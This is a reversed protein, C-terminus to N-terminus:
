LVIRAVLMVATFSGNCSWMSLCSSSFLVVCPIYHKETNSDRVYVFLRVEKRFVTFRKYVFV